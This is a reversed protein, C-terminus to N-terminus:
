KSIQEFNANTRYSACVIATPRDRKHCADPNNFRCTDCLFRDGPWQRAAFLTLLSAVTALIAVVILEM